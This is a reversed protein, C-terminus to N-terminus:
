EQKECDLEPFTKYLENLDREHANARVGDLVLRIADETIKPDFIYSNKACQKLADKYSRIRNLLDDYKSLEEM